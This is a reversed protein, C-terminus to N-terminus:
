ALTEECAAGKNLGEYAVVRLRGRLGWSRLRELALASMTEISPESNTLIVRSAPLRGRFRGQSGSYEVEAVGTHEPHREGSVLGLAVPNKLTSLAVFHAGDWEKALRTEWEASRIGNVWIEVPNRHGHFLRQCNGAHFRLGHTYRFNAEKEFRAPSTLRFRVTEVNSPLKARALRALHNELISASIEMDPFIEYASCPAEFEWSEGWSLIQGRVKALAAPVLLKHDFSEDVLSKLIKKAASFDLLFDQADLAGGLEASVFYSDGALWSPGIFAYDLVTFDNLFLSPFSM